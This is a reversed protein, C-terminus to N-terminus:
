KLSKLKNVIWKYIIGKYGVRKFGELAKEWNEKERYLCIAKQIKKEKYTYPVYVKEGTLPNIGTHYMTTSLTMPTPTFVQVQKSYCNHKHIFEALEIMEKISCNPHAILWYPLIEKVGKIKNAIERYKYLFEKFKEGDPKQMAECVKKSVHEPAVKLRGSVHYKSLEKIYEDGYAKDYIILDYRVGSRVYVKVDEGVIDRIKRYLKILPKHNIILNECPEPYLCNKPCKHALGKSCGMRYMNATPAGVDQIVGKFDEHELIKRVEKLINKESRNQIVKGQHHLISCFSCSGFCGRHTVISFQVPVLGPVFKYSPHAKRLFPLSYIEDMEKETLYVPPFQILYQSGVKQYIINNMTMLRKHMEAYKVKDKVVEEHSPLEVCRYREKIDELKHKNAKIVTGPIELDKINEGRELAKTIELISKEGMGYMLIDAKADILVSKRVKNDWYDYHSFRRLSAEIGGLAVPVGKFARKILNTYVITARDPRKRIGDDSMTDFNRVRKQPTYHAVMSDLNGATVAFFYNPKGLKKIDDLNRWDPQALIGVRYGKSELYRGVLAPGFMYSDIYADGSVIIVDLEEWGRDKAEELTTPLFM